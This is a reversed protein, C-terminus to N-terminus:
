PKQIVRSRDRGHHCPKRFLVAFGSGRIGCHAIIALAHIEQRFDCRCIAIEFVHLPGPRQFCNKRPHRRRRAQELDAASFWDHASQQGLEAVVDRQDIGIITKSISRGIILAVDLM